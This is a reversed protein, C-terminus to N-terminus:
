VMSHNPNVLSTKMKERTLLAHASTVNKKKQRCGYDDDVMSKYEVMSHNPDLIAPLVDLTKWKARAM